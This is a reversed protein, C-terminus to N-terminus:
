NYLDYSKNSIAAGESDPCIKELKDFAEAINKAVIVVDEGNVNTAIYCSLSVDDLAVNNKVVQENIVDLWHKWILGTEKDFATGNVIAELLENSKKLNEM